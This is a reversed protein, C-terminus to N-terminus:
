RPGSSWAASAVSRCARRRRRARGRWASRRARDSQRAGRRMLPVGAFEADPRRRASQFGREVQRVGRLTSARGTRRRGRLSGSEASARRRRSRERRRRGPDAGARTVAKADLTREVRRAAMAEVRRLQEGVGVGVREVAREAEVRRHEREALVAPGCAGLAIAPAGGAPSGPRLRIAGSASTM